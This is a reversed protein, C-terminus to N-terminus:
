SRITPDLGRESESQERRAFGIKAKVADVTASGVDAESCIDRHSVGDRLLSAIEEYTEDSHHNNESM